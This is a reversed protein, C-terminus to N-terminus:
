GIQDGIDRVIVLVRHLTKSPLEIEITSMHLGYEHILGGLVNRPRIGAAARDTVPATSTDDHDPPRLDTCEARVTRVWRESFANARPQAAPDEGGRDGRRGAGRRVGRQVAAAGLLGRWAPEYGAPAPPVLRCPGHPPPAVLEVARGFWGPATVM